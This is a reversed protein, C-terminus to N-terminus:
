TSSQSDSFIFFYLVFFSVEQPPQIRSKHYIYMTLTRTPPAESVIGLISAKDSKNILFQQPRYHCPIGKSLHDLSRTPSELLHQYKIESSLCPLKYSSNTCTMTLSNITPVTNRHPENLHYYVHHPGEWDPGKM